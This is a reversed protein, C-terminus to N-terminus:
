VCDDPALHQESAGCNHQLAAVFRGGVDGRGIVSTTTGAPNRRRRVLPGRDQGHVHALYACVSCIPPVSASGPTRDTSASIMPSCAPVVAPEPVDTSDLRSRNCCGARTGAASASVAQWTRLLGSLVARAPCAWPPSLWHGPRSVPHGIAGDAPHAGRVSGNYESHPREGSRGSVRRWCSVVQWSRLIVAAGARCGSM